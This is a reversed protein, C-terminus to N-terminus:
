RSVRRVLSMPEEPEDRKYSHRRVVIPGLAPHEAPFLLHFRMANTACKVIFMFIWIHCYYWWIERQTGSSTPTDACGPLRVRQSNTGVLM